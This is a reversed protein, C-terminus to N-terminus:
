SPDSSPDDPAPRPGKRETGRAGRASPTPPPAASPQAPLPPPSHADRRRCMSAAKTYADNALRSGLTAGLGCLFSDLCVTAVHEM